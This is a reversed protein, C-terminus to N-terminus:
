AGKIIDYDNEAKRPLDKRRKTSQRDDQHGLAFTRFADSGHSAWNHKPKAIFIKNKADWAKEYNRLANIGRECKKEDFWCKPIIMRCAHIGDDVDQKGVIETPKVKLEDLTEQRTKGTGLERAAGDHPLYHREYVYERDVLIMKAYRALGLGSEEIYDICHYAAGVQQIFWICTTDGIGLDWYTSVPVAPDYPVKTIRGTKEAQDMLKGYYAGILAASFSCEFEQEYEEESMTARAAALESEPIIKTESAKYIATFWEPSKRAAEYIDYFHNRGKPTGIFIAWGLRDSLAPRVVQSWVRPDMEAYEDLLVGDLYIGRISGPNDAGLLMFRIRDGRDPRPIDVRLEAENATAGPIGKTFEKLYDWAVRKAQGYFPAVYAYQPNKLPNRLGRDIMENISLVTKGFRRHCVIVNFRRLQAHLVAQHQRPHYGTTIVQVKGQTM